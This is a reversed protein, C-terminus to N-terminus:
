RVRVRASALLLGAEALIESFWDGMVTEGYEHEFRFLIQVEDSSFRSAVWRDIAPALPERPLTGGLAPPETRMLKVFKRKVQELAQDYM